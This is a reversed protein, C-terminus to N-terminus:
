GGKETRVAEESPPIGIGEPPSPFQVITGSASKIASRCERAYDTGAGMKMALAALFLDPTKVLAAGSRVAATICKQTFFDQAREAPEAAVYVNAFLVGKAYTDVGERAFDEELNRALQSLKDVNVPKTEKGEVEGLYRGEEDSFVVDFEADGEAFHDAVFGLIRLGEIVAAELRSGQEFLLARLAGEAELQELMSAKESRRADIEATLRDVQRRIDREAPLQYIEDAVWSPPPAGQTELKLAGDLEVLLQTLRKGLRTGTTTVRIENETEEFLDDWEFRPPPLLVIAGKGRRLLAGVAKNGAKTMLLTEFGEPSFYVQYPSVDAYEAWYPAVLGLNKTARIEQGGKPVLGSITVPIAEYSSFDEVIKTTIRNRGTGSYTRGGTDLKVEDPPVLYVVITKGDALAAELESKWHAAAERLRFSATETLVRKGEYTLRSDGYAPPLSPEFVIIDADLVSRDSLYELQEVDEDPYAFGVSAIQKRDPM